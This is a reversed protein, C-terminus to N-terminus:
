EIVRQAPRLRGDLRRPERMVLQPAIADHVADSVGTRYPELESMWSQFRVFRATCNPRDRSRLGHGSGSRARDAHTADERENRARRRRVVLPRVTM